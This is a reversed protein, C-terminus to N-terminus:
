LCTAITQIQKKKHNFSKTKKVPSEEEVLLLEEDAKSISENTSSENREKRKVSESSIKSSNIEKTNFHKFATKVKPPRGRKRRVPEPTSTKIPENTLEENLLEELSSEIIDFADDAVIVISDISDSSTRSSNLDFESNDFYGSDDDISNDKVKKMRDDGEKEVM